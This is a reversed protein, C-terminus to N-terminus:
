KKEKEISNIPGNNESQKMENLSAWAGPAAFARPLWVPRFPRMGPAARRTRRVVIYSPSNAEFM